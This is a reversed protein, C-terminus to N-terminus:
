QKKRGIIKYLEITITAPSWRADPFQHNEMIKGYSSFANADTGRAARMVYGETQFNLPNGASATTEYVVPPRVIQVILELGNEDIFAKKKNDWSIYELKKQTM